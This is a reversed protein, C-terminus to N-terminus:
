IDRRASLINPLPAPGEGKGASSLQNTGRTKGSGQRQPARSANTPEKKHKATAITKAVPRPMKNEASPQQNNNYINNHLYASTIGCQQIV